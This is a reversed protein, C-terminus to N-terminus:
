LLAVKQARKKDIKIQFAIGSKPRVNEINFDRARITNKRNRQQTDTSIVTVSTYGAIPEACLSHNRRLGSSKPLVRM